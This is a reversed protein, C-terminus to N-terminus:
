SSRSFIEIELIKVIETYVDIWGPLTTKLSIINNINVLIGRLLNIDWEKLKSPYISPRLNEALYELHDIDSIQSFIKAYLFDKDLNKNNCFIIPDALEYLHYDEWQWIINSFQATENKTFQEITKQIFPQHEYEWTDGQNDKHLTIYEKLSM